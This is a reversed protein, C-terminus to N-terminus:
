AYHTTRFRYKIFYSLASAIHTRTMRNFVIGLVGHRRSSKGHVHYMRSEPVYMVAYGNEWFRRAWDVDEFYMFFREDMLGIHKASERSVLLAAGMLWDVRCPELADSLNKGAYTYRALHRKGWGLKKLPTRRLLVTVPSPFRFASQQYANDIGYLKPGAMGVDPHEAVYRVLTDVAYDAAVIDTNLVLFHDGEASHIGANVAKGFGTNEAFPICRVSPFQEALMRPAEGDSESDVVIIEHTTDRITRTLSTICEGLLAPTKYNVIIISLLPKPM